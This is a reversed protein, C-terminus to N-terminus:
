WSSQGCQQHPISSTSSCPSRSQYRSSSFEAQLPESVLFAASSLSRSRRLGPSKSSNQIDSVHKRSKSFFGKPSQFSNDAINGVQSGDESPNEWYLQKDTSLPPFKNNGNSSASSRFFFLKKMHTDEASFALRLM